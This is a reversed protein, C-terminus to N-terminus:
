MSERIRDGSYNAKRKGMLMKWQSLEKRLQRYNNIAKELPTWVDINDIVDPYTAFTTEILSHTKKIFSYIFAITDYRTYYFNIFCGRQKLKRELCSEYQYEM